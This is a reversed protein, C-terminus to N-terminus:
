CIKQMTNANAYFGFILYIIRDSAHQSRMLYPILTVFSVQVLYKQFPHLGCLGARTPTLALLALARTLRKTMIQTLATTVVQARLAAQAQGHTATLPQIVMRILIQLLVQTSTPAKTVTKARVPSVTKGQAPTLTRIPIQAAKIIIQQHKITIPTKVQTVM